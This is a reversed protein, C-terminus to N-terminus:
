AGKHIHREISALYTEHWRQLLVTQSYRAEALAAANNGIRERLDSSACLEDLHLIMEASSNAVRAFDSNPIHIGELSVATGIIPRGLALSQVARSKIGTGIVDPLIVIDSSNIVDIYDDVWELFECNYAETVGSLEADARIRGMILFTCDPAQTSQGMAASFLDVFAQRMDSRRLDAYILVRVRQGASSRVSRHKRQLELPLMVPIAVVETHHHVKHLYEKDADSVVHWTLQSSNLHREVFFYTLSAMLHAVAKPSKARARAFRVQRRSGPDVFSVVTAVPSNSRFLGAAAVCDLHILDAGSMQMYKRLERAPRRILWLPLMNFLARGLVSGRYQVFPGVRDVALYNTLQMFDISDRNKVFGLVEVKDGSEALSKALLLTHQHLGERPPYSLDSVVFLIKM